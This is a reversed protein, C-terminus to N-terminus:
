TSKGEYKLILGCLKFVYSNVFCIGFVTLGVLCVEALEVEEKGDTVAAICFGGCSIFQFTDSVIECATVKNNKDPDGDALQFGSIDMIFELIFIPYATAQEWLGVFRKTEVRPIGLAWGVLRSIALFIGNTLDLGWVQHVV